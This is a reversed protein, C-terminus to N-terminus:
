FWFSCRFCVKVDVHAIYELQCSNGDVPTIMFGYLLAQARVVSCFTPRHTTTRSVFESKVPVDSHEISTGYIAIRGDEHEDCM